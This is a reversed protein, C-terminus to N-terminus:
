PRSVAHRRPPGEGQKEARPPPVSRTEPAAEGPPSGLLSTQVPQPVHRLGHAPEFGHSTGVRSMSIRHGCRMPGDAQSPQPTHTRNQGPPLRPNEALRLPCHITESVLTPGM